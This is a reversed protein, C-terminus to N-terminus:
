TMYNSFRVTTARARYDTKVNVLAVMGEDVKKQARELAPRIDEPQEVYEGHCGLGQAM